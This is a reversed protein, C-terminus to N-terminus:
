VASEGTDITAMTTLTSYQPIPKSKVQIPQQIYENPQNYHSNPIYYSKGPQPQGYYQMTPQIPLAQNNPVSTWQQNPAQQMNQQSTANNYYTQGNGVPFM